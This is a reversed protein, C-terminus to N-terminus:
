IEAMFNETEYPPPNHHPFTYVFKPVDEPLQPYWITPGLSTHAVLPAIKTM